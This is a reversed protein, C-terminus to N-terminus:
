ADSSVLILFGILRKGYPFLIVDVTIFPGFPICTIYHVGAGFKTVRGDGCGLGVKLNTSFNDAAVESCGEL